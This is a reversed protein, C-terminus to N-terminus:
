KQDIKDSVTLGFFGVLVGLAGILTGKAVEERISRGSWGERIAWQRISYDCGLIFWSASGCPSNIGGLSDLAARITRRASESGIVAGVYVSGSIRSLNAARIPDLAALEFLRSFEEGAAREQSGIDGNRELRGLLGEAVFPDGIEGDVDAIQAEVRRVRNHQRRYRSPRIIREDVSAAM